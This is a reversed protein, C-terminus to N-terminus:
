SRKVINIDSSLRLKINEKLEKLYKSFNENVFNNIDHKMRYINRIHITVPIIFMIITIILLENSALILRWAERTDRAQDSMAVEIHALVVLFLALSVTVIRGLYRQYYELINKMKPVNEVSRTLRDNLVKDIFEGTNNIRFLKLNCLNEDNKIVHNIYNGMFPIRKILSSVLFTKVLDQSKILVKFDSDFQEINEITEKYIIEVAAECQNNSLEYLKKSSFPAKEGSISKLVPEKIGNWILHLVKQDWQFILTEKMLNLERILGDIEKKWYENNLYVETGDSYKLDKIWDKSEAPVSELLSKNVLINLKIFEDTLLTTDSLEGCEIAKTIKENSRVIQNDIIALVSKIELEVITNIEKDRATSLSYWTREINYRIESFLRSELNNENYIGQGNSYKLQNLNDSVSLISNKRLPRELLLDLKEKKSIFSEFSLDRIRIMSKVEIEIKKIESDAQMKLADIEKAFLREANENWRAEDAKDFQLLKPYYTLLKGNNTLCDIVCNTNNITLENSLVSDSQYTRKLIDPRAYGNFEIFSKDIKNVLDNSKKKIAEQYDSKTRNRLDNYIKKIQDATQNVIKNQKGGGFFWNIVGAFLNGVFDFINNSFLADNFYSTFNINLAGDIKSLYVPLENISKNVLSLAVVSSKDKRFFATEWNLKRQLKNSINYFDGQLKDYVPRLADTLIRNNLIESRIQDLYIRENEQSKDYIRYLNSNLNFKLDEFCESIEKSVRESIQILEKSTEEIIINYKKLNKAYVDVTQEFIKSYSNVEESFFQNLSKEKLQGINKNIKDDIYSRIVPITDNREMGDLNSKPSFPLIDGVYKGYIEYAKDLVEKWKNVPVREMFTLIGVINENGRYVKELATLTDADELKTAKLCWLVYDARYFYYEFGDSAQLQIGKTGFLNINEYKSDARFQSFGPTDILAINKLWDSKIRWKVQYLDSKWNDDNVSKNEEELCIHAAESISVTATDNRKQFYLIAEEKPSNEYVDIKWTKPLRSVPAVDKNFLSNILTSKGYNGEGIVMLMFLEKIDLKKKKVREANEIFGNKQLEDEFVEMKTLM